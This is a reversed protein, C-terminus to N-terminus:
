YSLFRGCMLICKSSIKKNNAAIRLVEKQALFVVYHIFYFLEFIEREAARSKKMKMFHWKCFRHACNFLLLFFYAVILDRKRAIILVRRALLQPLDFNLQMHTPIDSHSKNHLEEAAAWFRREGGTFRSLSASAIRCHNMMKMWCWLKIFRARSVGFSFITFFSRILVRWERM